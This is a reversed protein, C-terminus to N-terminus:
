AAELLCFLAYQRQAEEQRESPSLSRSECKYVWANEIQKAFTPLSPDVRGRTTRYAYFAKDSIIVAFGDAVKAM